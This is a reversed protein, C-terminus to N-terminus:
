RAEPDGAGRLSVAKLQFQTPEQRDAALAKLQWHQQSCDGPLQLLLRHRAPREGLLVPERWVARTGAGYGCSVVWELQGGAAAGDVEFELAYSGAPLRTVREAIVASRIPMVSVELGSEGRLRARVVEDSHLRWALPVLSPDTSAQTFGFDDVAAPRATALTVALRRAVDYRGADVLRRLMHPLLWGREERSLGGRQLMLEAVAVPDAAKDAAVALFAGYWRRGSYAALVDRLKPDGVLPALPAFMDASIRPNVTLSKDFHDFTTAYDNQSAALNLLVGQALADRRSIREALHLKRKMDRNGLLASALGLQAMAAPEFSALTLVAKASEQTSLADERSAVGFLAQPNRVAFAIRANGTLPAPAAAPATRLWYAVAVDQWAAAALLSALVLLALGRM